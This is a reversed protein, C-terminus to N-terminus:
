DNKRMDEVEKEYDSVSFLKYNKIRTNSITLGILAALILGYIVGQHGMSYSFYIVILSFITLFYVLLNSKFSSFFTLPLIFIIFGFALDLISHNFELAVIVVVCTAIALGIGLVPKETM